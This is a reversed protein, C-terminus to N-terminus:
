LCTYVPCCLQVLPEGLSNSVILGGEQEIRKREKENEPNHDTTLTVAKGNRCLIARTDGV